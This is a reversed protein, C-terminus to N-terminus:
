GGVRATVTKRREETYIGRGQLSLNPLSKPSLPRQKSDLQSDRALNGGVWSFRIQHCGVNSKFKEKIKIIRIHSCHFIVQDRGM